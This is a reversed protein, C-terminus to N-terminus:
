SGYTRISDHSQFRFGLHRQRRGYGPSPNHHFPKKFHRLPYEGKRRSIAYLMVTTVLFALAQELEWSNGHNFNYKALSITAVPLLTALIAYKLGRRELGHNVYLLFIASTILAIGLIQAYSLSYGMLADVLLLMPITGTRVLGFASRACKAVATVTFFTVCLELPLRVLFTPWAELTMHPWRWIAIGTFMLASCANTIFASTFINQIKLRAATKGASTSVEDLLTGIITLIIGFM